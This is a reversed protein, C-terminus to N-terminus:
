LNEGGYRTGKKIQKPFIRKINLAVEPMREIPHETAAHTCPACTRPRPSRLLVHTVWGLLISDLALLEMNKPRCQRISKQYKEIPLVRIAKGYWEKALNWHRCSATSIILPLWVEASVGKKQERVAKIYAELRSNLRGLRVKESEQLDTLLPM